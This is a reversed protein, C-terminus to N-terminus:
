DPRLRAAMKFLRVTARGIPTRGVIQANQIHFHDSWNQTRPNFLPQVSATEPDIGTLNPGKNLNCVSCALALNSEDDSGGHQRPMVHEVQYQVVLRDNQQIRCYECRNEARDRVFQRVAPKV